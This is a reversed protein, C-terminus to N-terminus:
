RRHWEAGIGIGVGYHVTQGAMRQQKEDIQVGAADAAKAAVAHAPNTAPAAAEARGAHSLSWDMKNILWVAAGGAIAGAIVDRGVGGTTYRGM